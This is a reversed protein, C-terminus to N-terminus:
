CFFLFWFLCFGFVLYLINQIDTEIKLRVDLKLLLIIGTIFAVFLIADGDSIGNKNKILDVSIKGIFYLFPSVFFGAFFDTIFNIIKKYKNEEM